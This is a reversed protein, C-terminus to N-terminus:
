LPVAQPETADSQAPAKIKLATMVKPLAPAITTLSKGQMVLLDGAAKFEGVRRLMAPNSGVGQVMTPAQSALHVNRFTGIALNAIAAAIIKKQDASAGQYAQTLDGALDSRNSLAGLDSDLNAKETGLEKISQMNSIGDVRAKMGALDERKQLAMSLLAASIMVNKTSAVANHLFADADGAPAAHAGGGMGPLKHALGGFQASAAMPSVLLGIAALAGFTTRMTM